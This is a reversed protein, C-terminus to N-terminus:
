NGPTHDNPGRDPREPSHRIHTGGPWLLMVLGYAFTAAVSGIVLSAVWLPKAYGAFSRLMGTYGELDSADPVGVMWVGFRYLLPYIIAATFPNTVFTGALAVPLNVKLFYGAIGALIIQAGMTPTFGIFIGLALGGAVTRRSPKWLDAGFLGDGLLRHLRGGKLHKRRPMHRLWRYHRRRFAHMRQRFSVPGAAFHLGAERILSACHARYRGNTLRPSVAKL